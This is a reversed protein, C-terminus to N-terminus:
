QSNQKRRQERIKIAEEMLKYRNFFYYWKWKYEVRTRTQFKEDNWNWKANNCDYSVRVGSPMLTKCGDATIATEDGDWYRGGPELVMEDIRVFRADLDASPFSKAGTLNAYRFDTHRLTVDSFSAGSLNAGVFNTFRLYAKDLKAASLDANLLVAGTLNAGQLNASKLNANGLLTHFLRAGALNAGELNLGTLNAYSLDAGKLNAGKLDGVIDTGFVESITPPTDPSSDPAYLINTLDCGECDGTKRLFEVQALDYAVASTAISFVVLVFLTTKNMM